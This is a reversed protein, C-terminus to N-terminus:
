SQNAGCAAATERTRTTRMREAVDHTAPARSQENAVLSSYRNSGFRGRLGKRRDSFGLALLSRGDVRVAVLLHAQGGVPAGAQAPAQRDVVVVVTGVVVPVSPVVFLPIDDDVEVVRDHLESLLERVVLCGAAAEDQSIANM